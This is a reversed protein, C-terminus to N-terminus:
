DVAAFYYIRPNTRYKKIHIYIQIYTHVYITNVTTTYKVAALCNVPTKMSVDPIVKLFYFPIRLM